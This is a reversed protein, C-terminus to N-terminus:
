SSAGEAVDPEARMADNVLAVAKEIADDSTERCTLMVSDLGSRDGGDAEAFVARQLDFLLPAHDSSVKLLSDRPAVGPVFALVFAHNGPWDGVTEAAEDLYAYAEAFNGLRAAVNARNWHTVWDDAPGTRVAEQLDYAAEDLLDDSFSRLFGVRSLMGSLEGDLEIESLGSTRLATIAEDAVETARTLAGEDADEYWSEFLNHVANTAAHRQLVVLTRRAVAGEVIACESGMWTLDSALVVPKWEELVDSWAQDLDQDEVGAPLEWLETYELQERGHGVSMYVVAVRSDDGTLLESIREFDSPGWPVLDIEAQALRGVDGSMSLSRVAPRPSLHGSGDESMIAGFGLSTASCAQMVRLAADRMLARGVAFLFDLEFPRDSVEAGIRARAKYKLLVAAPRGGVVDFREGAGDLQVVGRDQLGELEERVREAVQDIDADLIARDVQDADRTAIKLVRAIAIQRVTMRAMSVLEVAQRISEEPLRDIAQAGNLLEDRREALLSLHPIMRDLLRPTLAYHDSEARQCAVWLHRGVLMVEYPNGGTLRLIDRLFALDGAPVWDREAGALPARLATLVQQPGRLPRLNVPGIRALCPSAAEIFHGAVVPLGAILLGYGGVADMTDVLREVLDVDETLADADDVVILVGSLDAEQALRLLVGLDQRLLVDDVTGTPNVALALASSLVDRETSPEANRLYVRDRWALYWDPVGDAHRALTEVIALLLRRIFAAEDLVDDGCRVSVVLRNRDVEARRAVELLVTTRGSREDGLVASHGAGGAEPAVLALAVDIETRRNQLLRPDTVPTGLPYPGESVAM